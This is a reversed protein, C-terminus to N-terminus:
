IARVKNVLVIINESPMEIKKSSLIIRVIKEARKKKLLFALFPSLGESKMESKLIFEKERKEMLEEKEKAKLFDNNELDKIFSNLISKHEELFLIVDKSKIKKLAKFINERKLSIIDLLEEKAGMKILENKFDEKEKEIIEEYDFPSKGLIYPAYNTDQLVRFAEEFSSANIMRSFDTNNPIHKEKARSSYIFFLHKM